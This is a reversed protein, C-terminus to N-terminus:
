LKDSYVFATPFPWAVIPAPKHLYNKHSFYQVMTARVNSGKGLGRAFARDLWPDVLEHCALPSICPCTTLCIEWLRRTTVICGDDYPPVGNCVRARKVARPVESARANAPMNFRSM